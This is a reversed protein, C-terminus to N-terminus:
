EFWQVLVEVDYVGVGDTLMKLPELTRRSGNRIVGVLTVLEGLEVGLNVTLLSM